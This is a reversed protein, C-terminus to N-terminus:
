KNVIEIWKQDAYGNKDQGNFFQWTRGTVTDIKFLMKMDISGSGSVSSLEVTAPVLQYRGVPDDARVTSTTGITLAALIAALIAHKMKSHSFRASGLSAIRLWPDGALGVKIVAEDKFALIYLSQKTM